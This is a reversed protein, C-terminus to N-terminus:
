TCLWQYYLEVKYKNKLRVIDPLRVITGDMSFIGEVVILIKRWPTGSNPQGYLLAEQLRAELSAPDLVCIFYSNPNSQGSWM